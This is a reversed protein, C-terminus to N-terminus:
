ELGSCMTESTVGLFLRNLCDSRDKIVEVKSFDLKRTLTPVKNALVKVTKANM